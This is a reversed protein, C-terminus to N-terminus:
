ISCKYGSMKKYVNNIMYYQESIDCFEDYKGEIFDRTQLYLGPKFQIDLSNDILVPNIAVSGILQEQLSEMPRLILRRTKTVFELSWRGPGEWNACYSFLIDNKCKGAGTFISSSPHWETGGTFYASFETPAGCVYFATDIVHSSNGLFWYNHEVPHKKLAKVIHSWETFEFNFSKVGGDVDILEKLKIISSYFRRNYALLIKASNIKSADYLGQIEEPSGVGPKELLIKKVGYQLLVETTSSLSEIGVAVIVANPLVPNSELYFKLGGVYPQLGTKELFNNCSTESRGIPTFEINLELLVKAYEIGMEGTGILWIEKSKM